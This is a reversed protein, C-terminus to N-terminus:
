KIHIYFNTFPIRLIKRFSIYFLFYLWFGKLLKLEKTKGLREYIEELKSKIELNDIKNKFFDCVKYLFKYIKNQWKKYINEEM